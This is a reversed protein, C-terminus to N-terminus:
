PRQLGASDALRDTEAIDFLKLARTENAQLKDRHERHERHRHAQTTFKSNVVSVGLARFIASSLFRDSM